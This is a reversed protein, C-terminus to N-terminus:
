GRKTPPLVDAPAGQQAEFDPAKDRPSHIDLAANWASEMRMGLLIGMSQALKRASSIEKAAGRIAQSYEVGDEIRALYNRLDDHAYERAPFSNARLLEVYEQVTTRMGYFRWQLIGGMTEIVSFFLRVGLLFGLAKWFEHMGGGTLAVYAWTLAAYPLLSFALVIAPSKLDKM